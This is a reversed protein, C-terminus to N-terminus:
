VGPHSPIGSSQGRACASTTFSCGLVGGLWGQSFSRNSRTIIQSYLLSRGDSYSPVSQVFRIVVVRSYFDDFTCYGVYFAWYITVFYILRHHM